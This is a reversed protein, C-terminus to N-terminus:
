RRQTTNSTTGSSSARRSSSGSPPNDEDNNNHVEAPFPPPATGTEALMYKNMEAITGDIHEIKTALINRMMKKAQCYQRGVELQQMSGIVQNDLWESHRRMKTLHKKEEEDNLGLQDSLSNALEKDYLKYMEPDLVARPRPTKVVEAPPTARKGEGGSSSTTPGTSDSPSKADISM